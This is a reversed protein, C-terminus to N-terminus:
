GGKVKAIVQTYVGSDGFIDTKIKAWGGFDDITFQDAIVPFKVTDVTAGPTAEAGAEPTAQAANKVVPPRFGGEAFIAQIDPRYLFNIFGEVAQRNGHKDVYTDVLAIPNEILLTSSPYIITFDDGLAQGAYYQNEYTISVDGIGREFTQYSDLGSADMVSVNTFLDSLFKEAGEAGADYGTVKGRFAAGYGGMVNWQAGGSTAADPTIVEIGPKAIDAWDHIGKPNDKRVVLVVVSDSIMGGYANDKWDHTILNADVLRNVDGELSLAVVDAEFGGAVARSQAGSALYSEQFTVDQGTQQKWYDTFLPLIKAYTGQVVSYGALTITVSGSDQAFAPVITLLAALLGVVFAVSFIRKV